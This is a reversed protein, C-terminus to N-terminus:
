YSIVLKGGIVAASIIKSQASGAIRFYKRATPASLTFKRNAEDSVANSEDSYPGGVTSASQLRVTEPVPQSIISNIWNARGSIRTAYFSSPRNQSTDSIFQPTSSANYLGGMDVLAANFPTGLASAAFPGDTAYLIGALKWTNGDQLYLAGGSDGVSLHAENGGVNSDFSLRLMEGGGTSTTGAITNQGWRQVSDAEGWAWGKLTTGVYVPDGRQTGRGIVVASRGAEDAKSYLPAFTPFSEAAQWIRLDSSPDDFYARTNYVRGNFVFQQGVFGGIHKASVFYHPAIPTGSFSGWAGQYQWGSNALTGTPATTNVSPDATGFLIVGRVSASLSSLLLGGMLLQRWKSHLGPSNMLM